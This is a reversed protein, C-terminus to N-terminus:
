IICNLPPYNVFHHLCLKNSMKYSFKLNRKKIKSFVEDNCMFKYRINQVYSVRNAICTISGYKCKRQRTPFFLDSICWWWNHRISDGGAYKWIGCWYCFYVNNYFIREIEECFMRYCSIDASNNRNFAHRFLSEFHLFHSLCHQTYAYSELRYYKSTNYYRQFFGKLKYVSCFKCKCLNLQEANVIFNFPDNDINWSEIAVIPRPAIISTKFVIYKKSTNGKCQIKSTTDFDNVIFLSLAYHDVINIVKTLISPLSKRMRPLWM